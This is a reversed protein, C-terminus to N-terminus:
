FGYKRRRTEFAERGGELIEEVLGRVSQSDISGMHEPAIRARGGDAEGSASLGLILEADGLVPLNANHTSFIFQRRQKEERIRPVVGETIFRNDLDDEPQDVVLPADVELLLLLLVATAKQGTSLEELMQWTPPAGAPATNLRVATTPPLELEEIRMFVEPDANALREAQAPPIGYAKGLADAGSRCTEAFHTLSLTPAKRLSEIAESMRGGIEERLIKFLPERNGEAIVEVQVRDRLRRGVNKAAQDLARFEKGKVDEWEALLQRRKDTLEREARRLLALRHQLPRLEEIQRRLRIFEEGDVRSKQLERLIKEYEAQVQRKRAEWASRVQAMGEDAHKLAKALDDAIQTLDGDLEALVENARSLIYRGPLDELARESLFTRDIPLERKLTELAERFPALREPVSGLVREERVLLSQERLREELGAEQFRKLTEELAPLAALREEIAKIQDRTDCLDRRNKELDRRLSTKRRDLTEAHEVFRDLLRTLKERSKTLESIEHQGYVEVRPLVDLPALNSAEGRADRVLPPNPITREIRYERVAPRQVRVLLSIKTGNRLVHRVIGEHAKRADDGIPELGLAARISEIVTSKGTGRGGVLVNLNPNFHVAVGDLFGGEWALAVLETHQEPELAGMKPNLRIRSGPDLFAQRLGEISVESMKIWCTAARDELDEPKAVDKANVAAIALREEAPHERRYHPNQNEIIQRVDQPLDEIPGPIQVAVLNRDQWAHIRPQGTLAKFLGGDNTAHAAIALGGQDRVKKLIEVFSKDALAAAPKTDTIGFAGLYRNLVEDPTDPGYICLVHVGESSALEFGPFIFIGKGEAAARFAEVNSVSNHDTIALVTIGLEAAKDVIARAYSEASWTSAEGRFTPSYHQPNVQLACKYFRAGCPLKLANKIPDTKIVM